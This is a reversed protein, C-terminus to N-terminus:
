IASMLKSHAEREKLETSACSIGYRSLSKINIHNLSSYVNLLIYTELKITEVVIRSSANCNVVIQM